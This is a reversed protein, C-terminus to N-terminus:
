CPQPPAPLCPLAGQRRRVERMAAMSYSLQGPLCSLLGYREALRVMLAQMAAVGGRRANLCPIPHAGVPLPQPFGRSLYPAAAAARNQVREQAQGLTGTAGCRCGFPLMLWVAGARAGPPLMEVLAAAVAPGEADLRGAAGAALDRLLVAPAGRAVAAHAARRLAPLSSLCPATGSRCCFRLLAFPDAHCAPDTRDVDAQFAPSAWPRLFPDAQQTQSGHCAAPLDLPAADWSPAEHWGSFGM